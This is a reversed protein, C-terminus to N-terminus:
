AAPANQWLGMVNGEPDTFYGTFGMDAVAQRGMLTKGGLREVKELAEDIDDVGITLVPSTIPFEAKDFLGGNIAGPKLPMMDPGVEATTVGHYNMGPYAQIQWGFAERYFTKAREVDDAPVEFHVVSNAM